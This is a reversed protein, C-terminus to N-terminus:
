YQDVAELPGPWPCAWWSLFPNARLISAEAFDGGSASAGRLLAVVAASAVDAPSWGRGPTLSSSCAETHASPLEGGSGVAGARKRMGPLADQTIRSYLRPRRLRGLGRRQSSHQHADADGHPRNNRAVGLTQVAWLIRRRLRRSARLSSQRTGPRATTAAAQSTAMTSSSAAWSPLTKPTVVKGGALGAFSLPNGDKHRCRVAVGEESNCIRCKVTNGTRDKPNGKRGFGKGSAGARHGKGRGKLYQLCPHRRCDVHGWWRSWPPTQGERKRQFPSRTERPPPVTRVPM